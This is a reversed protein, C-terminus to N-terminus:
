HDHAGEGHWPIFEPVKEIGADIRQRVAENTRGQGFLADAVGFLAQESSGALRYFKEAERYEKRVMRTEAYHLYAKPDDPFEKIIEKLM